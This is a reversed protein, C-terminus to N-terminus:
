RSPGQSQQLARVYLTVAAAMPGSVPYVLLREAKLPLPPPRDGSVSYPTGNLTATAPETVPPPCPPPPLSSLGDDSESVLNGSPRDLAPDDRPGAHHRRRHLTNPDDPQAGDGHGGAWSHRVLVHEGSVARHQLGVARREAHGACLSLPLCLRRPSGAHLMAKSAPALACQPLLHRRPVSAVPRPPHPQPICARVQSVLVTRFRAGSDLGVPETFAPDHDGYFGIKDLPSTDAAVAATTAVQGLLLVVNM